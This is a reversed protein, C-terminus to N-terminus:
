AAVGGSTTMAHIENAFDDVKAWDTFEVHTHPDTPGKTMWMIFRIMTRDFFGYSPYNIVGAFVGIKAPRWPVQELFKGIYPNTEPTNKEPKRATVNVTFFANPKADLQDKRDTVFARIAKSHKGYRISAGVVLKDFADLDVSDVDEVAVLEVEDGIDNLRTQMTGCIKRTHGDTTGYVFLIRAM